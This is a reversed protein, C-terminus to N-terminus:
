AGTFMPPGALLVKMLMALVAKTVVHAARRTAAHEEVGDVVVSDPVVVM